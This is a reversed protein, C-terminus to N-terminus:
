HYSEPAESSYKNVVLLYFKILLLLCPWFLSVFVVVFVVDFAVVDVIVVIDVVVVTSCSCFNFSM